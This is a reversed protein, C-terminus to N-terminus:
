FLRFTIKPIISHPTFQTVCNPRIFHSDLQGILLRYMFRLSWYESPQYKSNQLNLYVILAQFTTHHVWFPFVANWSPLTPFTSRLNAGVFARHHSSFTFAVNSSSNAMVSSLTKLTLDHNERLLLKSPQSSSKWSIRKLSLAPHLQHLDL